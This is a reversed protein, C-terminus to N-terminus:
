IGEGTESPDAIGIRIMDGRGNRFSGSNRNKDYGRERKPLPNPHPDESQAICSFIM